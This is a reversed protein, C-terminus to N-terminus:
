DQFRKPSPITFRLQNPEKYDAKLLSFRGLKVRNDGTEADEVWVEGACSLFVDNNNNNNNNNDKNNINEKVAVVEPINFSSSALLEKMNDESVSKTSPIATTGRRVEGEMVLIRNKEPPVVLRIRLRTQLPSATSDNDDDDDEKNGAWEAQFFRWTGGSARHQNEFDLIPGGAITGDVRLIINESVSADMMFNDKGEMLRQQDISPGRPTSILRWIGVFHEESPFPPLNRNQITTSSQMSSPSDAALTRRQRWNQLIPNDEPKPKNKKNKQLKSWDGTVVPKSISSIIDNMNKSIISSDVDDDDNDDKTKKNEEDVAKEDVTEEDVDDKDGSIDKDDDRNTELVIVADNYDSVTTLDQKMIKDLVNTGDEEVNPSSEYITELLRRDAKSKTKRLDDDISQSSANKSPDLVDPSFPPLGAEEAYISKEEETRREVEYKEDVDEDAKLLDNGDPLKTKLHPVYFALESVGFPGTRGYVALERLRVGGRSKCLVDDWWKYWFIPSIGNGGDEPLRMNTMATDDNDNNTEYFGNNPKNTPPLTNEFDTPLRMFPLRPRWQGEKISDPLGGQPNDRPFSTKWGKAEFRKQLEYVVNRLLTTGEGEMAIAHLIENKDGDIELGKFNMLIPQINDQNVGYKYEEEEEEKDDMNNDDNNNTLSPTQILEQVVERVIKHITQTIPDRSTLMDNDSSPNISSSIRNKNSQQFPNNMKNNNNNKKSSNPGAFGKDDNNDNDNNNNTSSTDLYLLPMRMVVPVICANILLPCHYLVARQVSELELTLDHIDEMPIAIMHSYDNDPNDEKSEDSFLLSDLYGFGNDFNNTVDEKKKKKAHLLVRGREQLLMGGGSSSSVVISKKWVFGGGGFSSSQSTSTFANVTHSTTDSWSLLVMGVVIMMMKMKM